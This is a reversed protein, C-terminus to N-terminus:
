KEIRYNFHVVKESKGGTSNYFDLAHKDEENAAVFFEKVGSQKCYEKLTSILVKGLGNRQFETKIGIDYILIESYEGYIMQLKYATLGGVVNNNYVIVYAIFDTKNLLSQLFSEKPLISDQMEFIEHFTQILEKFRQVDSKDLLKIQFEKTEM